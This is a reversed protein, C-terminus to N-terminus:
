TSGPSGVVGAGTSGVVGAGTVGAGTSGVVGAGTSGGVGTVGGSLAGRGRRSGRGGLGEVGLTLVLGNSPNGGLVGGDIFPEWFLGGMSSPFLLIFIDRVEISGVPDSELTM